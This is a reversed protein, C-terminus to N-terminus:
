TVHKFNSEPKVLKLLAALELWCKACVHYKEVLWTEATPPSFVLAGPETLESQCRDCRIALM